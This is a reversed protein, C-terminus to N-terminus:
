VLEGNQEPICIIIYLRGKRVIINRVKQMQENVKIQKEYGLNVKFINQKARVISIIIYLRGRM